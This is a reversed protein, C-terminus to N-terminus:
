AFTFRTADRPFSSWALVRVPGLRWLGAAYVAAGPSYGYKEKSAAHLRRAVEPTPQVWVTEGEVVVAAAADELHMSVHPDLRLNREHVTEASGGFWWADDLWHGDVPVVHPRGDPRCTALWYREAAALRDRVTSWALTTSPSGYASPLQMLETTPEM